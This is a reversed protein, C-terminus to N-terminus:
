GDCVMKAKAHHEHGTNNFLRLMKMAVRTPKVDPADQDGSLEGEYVDCFGGSFRLPNDVFKIRGSLNPVSHIGAKAPHRINSARSGLHNKSFPIIKGGLDISTSPHM